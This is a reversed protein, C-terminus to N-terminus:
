AKSPQLLKCDKLKWAESEVKPFPQKRLQEKNSSRLMVADRVAMGLEAKSPQAESVWRSRGAVMRCIPSLAIEPQVPTSATVQKAPAGGVQEAFVKSPMAVSMGTVTSIDFTLLKWAATPQFLNM